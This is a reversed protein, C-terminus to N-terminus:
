SDFMKFGLIRLKFSSEGSENQFRLLLAEQNANILLSRTSVGACETHLNVVIDALKSGREDNFIRLNLVHGENDTRLVVPFDFKRVCEGTDHLSSVYVGHFALAMKFSFALSKIELNRYQHLKFM